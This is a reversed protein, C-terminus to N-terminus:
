PSLHFSIGGVLVLSGVEQAGVELVGVKNDCGEMLSSTFLSGLNGRILNLLLHYPARCVALAQEDGSLAEAM